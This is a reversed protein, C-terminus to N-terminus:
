KIYKNNIKKERKSGVFGLIGNNKYVVLNLNTKVSLQLALGQRRRDEPVLSIKRKIAKIPSDIKVQKGNILIKGSNVKDAGFIARSLETRGAGVLGYIGVIEGENLELSCNKIKKNSINKVQLLRKGIQRSSDFNSGTLERGVMMTILKNDTMDSVKKDGVHVGDKLVSVSDCVKFIEEMRHSIYFIAVKKTKLLKIIKFLDNVAKNSLVATPEDFIIIKANSSVAKVIAVMGMQSTTLDSVINNPNIIGKFGIQNLFDDTKKILAKKNLIGYSSPLKGLWINEAVTLHEALMLNQYVCSLGMKESIAPTLHSIKKGNIIIEGKTPTEAGTLIKMLTSKGAGNEGVLARVEGPKISINVNDLANVGPYHKSINKMEIIYKNNM